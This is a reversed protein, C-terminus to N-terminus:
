PRDVCIHPNHRTNLVTVFCHQKRVSCMCACICVFLRFYKSCFITKEVFADNNSICMCVKVCPCVCDLLYLICETFIFFSRQYNERELIFSFEMVDEVAQLNPFQVVCVVSLMQKKYSCQKQPRHVM